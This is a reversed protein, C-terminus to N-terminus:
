GAVKTEPTNDNVADSNKPKPGRKLPELAQSIIHDIMGRSKFADRDGNMWAIASVIAQAYVQDVGKLNGSAGNTLAERVRDRSKRGMTSSPARSMRAETLKDLLALQEKKGLANEGDPLSGGFRKAMGRPLDGNDIAAQVEPICHALPLLKRGWQEPDDSVVHLKKTCVDWPCGAKRLKLLYAAMASPKPTRHHCNKVVLRAIADKETGHFPVIYPRVLERGEATRRRNVERVDLLRGRGDLVWLIGKDPDTWVEIPTTMKGDRDIEEVRLPDFETPESPDYLAHDPGPIILNDTDGSYITVADVGYKETFKKGGSRERKKKM